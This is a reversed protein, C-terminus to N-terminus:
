ACCHQIIVLAKWSEKLKVYSEREQTMMTQFKDLINKVSDLQSNQATQHAEAEYELLQKLHSNKHALTVIQNVTALTGQATHCWFQAAHLFVTCKNMTKDKEGNVWMAGHAPGM